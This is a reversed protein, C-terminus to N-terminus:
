SRYLGGWSIIRASFQMPVPDRCPRTQGTMLLGQRNRPRLRPLLGSTCSIPCPARRCCALREIAPENAAFHVGTVVGEVKVNFLATAILWREDLVARDSTDAFRESVAFQAVPYGTKRSRERAQTDTFAIAHDDVHRHDRLRSYCHERAGAQPCDVGHYEAAKSCVFERRADIIGVRFHDNRGRTTYLHLSYNRVFGEEVFRKSNGPVFGPSTHNRLAVHLASLEHHAAVAVPIFDHLRCLWVFANRDGCRIREVNEIGGTGGSLRFPNNAVIATM